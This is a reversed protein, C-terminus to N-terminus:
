FKQKKIKNIELQILTLTNDPLTLGIGSEIRKVEKKNHYLIVTPLYVVGETSFFKKEKSLMLTYTSADNIQSLDIQSKEVFEASFQVVSINNKYQSYTFIPFLLILIWLKM